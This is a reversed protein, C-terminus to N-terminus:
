NTLSPLPQVALKPLIQMLYFYNIFQMLKM